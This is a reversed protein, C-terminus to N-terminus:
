TQYLENSYKPRCEPCFWKGQPALMIGVCEFHFWEIACSDGDCAIMESVEDYPCRCYCYVSEGERAKRAGLPAKIPFRINNRKFYALAAADPNPLLALPISRAPPQPSLPAPPLLAMIRARKEETESESESTSTYIPKVSNASPAVTSSGTKAAAAKAAQLAVMFTPQRIKFKPIAPQKKDAKRKKTTSNSDQKILTKKAAMVPPASGPTKKIKIISRSPTPLDDKDWVLDPPAIPRMAAFGVPTSPNPPVGGEDDSTYGYFKNPRRQRKSRKVNDTADSCSSGTSIRQSFPTFPQQQYLTLQPQPVILDQVGPGQILDAPPILDVEPQLIATQYVPAPAVENNTPLPVESTVLNSVYGCTRASNKRDKKKKKVKKKEKMPSANPELEPEPEMARSPSTSNREMLVKRKEALLDSASKQPHEDYFDEDTDSETTDLDSEHIITEPKPLPIEEAITQEETATHTQEELMKKRKKEENESDSDDNSSSSSSSGSSSCSCNSGCSCSSDSDSSSDSESSLASKNKQAEENAKQLETYITEAKRHIKYIMAYDHDSQTVHLLPTTLDDEDDSLNLLKGNNQSQQFSKFNEWIDMIKGTDPQSKEPSEEEEDKAEDVPASDIIVPSIRSKAEDEPKTPLLFEKPSTPQDDDSDDSSGSESLNPAQLNWDEVIEKTRTRKKRKREGPPAPLESALKEDEEVKEGKVEEDLPKTDESKPEVNEPVVESPDPKVEPEEAKVDDESPKVDTVDEISPLLNGGDHGHLAAHKMLLKKSIFKEECEESKCPYKLEENHIRKHVKLYIAKSFTLNCVDCAFAAPPICFHYVHRWRKQLCRKCIISETGHKWFLHKTIDQKNRYAIGCRYCLHHLKHKWVHSSLRFQDKCDELCVDCSFHKKRLHVMLRFASPIDDLECIFCRYKIDYINMREPSGPCIHCLIESYSFFNAKCMFCSIATRLHMKRNHLYLEKHVGTQVRCQFCEFTRPEPTNPKGELEKNCYSEMNFYWDNVDELGSKIKAVITDPKLEEETISNVTAQFRHNALMHLALSNGNVAIRRGHNCYLCSHYSVKLCSRLLDILDYKDIPKELVMQLLLTHEDAVIIGDSPKNAIVPECSEIDVDSNNQVSPPPEVELPQLVPEELEKTEDVSTDFDDNQPSNPQRSEQSPPPTPLIALKTKEIDQKTKEIEEQIRQLEAFSQLSQSNSDDQITPLPPLVPETSHEEEEEDEEGSESSSTESDVSKQFEKPIRLKLKPVILAEEKDKEEEPEPIEPVVPIEPALPTRNCSYDIDMEQPEEQPLPTPLPPPLQPTPPAAYHPLHPTPLGNVKVKAPRVKPKITKCNASHRGKQDCFSCPKMFDPCSHEIFANQESFMHECTCCMVFSSQRSSKLFKEQTEFHNQELDHKMELHISLKEATPFLRLCYLCIHKQHIEKMHLFLNWSEYYTSCTSCRFVRRKAQPEKIPITEKSPEPVTVPPQVKPPSPPLPPPPPLLVPEPIPDAVPALSLNLPNTRDVPPPMESSSSRKRKTRTKLSVSSVSKKKGGKKKKHGLDIVLNQSSSNSTISDNSREEHLFSPPKGNVHTKNLLSFLKPCSDRNVEQDKKSKLLKQESTSVYSLSRQFMTNTTTPTFPTDMSMRLSRIQNMKGITEDTKKNLENELLVEKMETTHHPSLKGNVAPVVIQSKNCSQQSNLEETMSCEEEEEEEVDAPESKFSNTRIRDDDESSLKDSHNSFRNSCEGNEIGVRGGSDDQLLRTPQESLQLFINAKTECNNDTPQTSTVTSSSSSSTTPEEKLSQLKHDVEDDDKEEKIHVVTDDITVSNQTTTTTTTATFLSSQHSSQQLFLSSKSPSSSIEAM